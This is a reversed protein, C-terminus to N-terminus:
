VLARNARLRGSKPDRDCWHEIQGFVEVKRIEIVGISSKDSFRNGSKPDRDCWHEIQGFFP